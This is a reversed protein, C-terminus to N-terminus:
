ALGLCTLPIALLVGLFGLLKGWFLVCFLIIVPRLGTTRGMVRPTILADQLVQTVVFVVAVGILYGLFSSNQELATIGALMVAPVVGVVQLYPVMNLAGIFLGLLIAMRLGLEGNRLTVARM